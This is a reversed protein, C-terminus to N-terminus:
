RSVVLRSIQRLSRQSDSRTRPVRSDRLFHGYDSSTWGLGIRGQLPRFWNPSFPRWCGAFHKWTEPRPLRCRPRAFLRHCLGNRCQLLPCSTRQFSTRASPPFLTRRRQRLRPCLLAAREDSVVLAFLRPFSSASQKAVRQTGGYYASDRQTTGRGTKGFSRM